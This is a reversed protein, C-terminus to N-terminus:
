RSRKDNLKREAIQKNSPNLNKTKPDYVFDFDDGAVKNFLVKINDDKTVFYNPVNEYQMLEPYKTKLFNEKAKDIKQSDSLENKEVVQDLWESMMYGKDNDDFSGTRAFEDISSLVADLREKSKENGIEHSATILRKLDGFAIKGDKGGKLVNVIVNGVEDNSDSTSIDKLANYLSGKSLVGRMAGYFGKKDKKERQFSKIDSMYTTYAQAFEPRVDGQASMTVVEDPTLPKKGGAMDTIVKMENKFINEKKEYETARNLERIDRILKDRSMSSGIEKKHEDYYSIALNSDISKMYNVADIHTKQEVADQEVKIKEPSWGFKDALQLVAARQLGISEYIRRPDLSNVATSRDTEIFSNSQDVFYKEKEEYQHKAIRNQLESKNNFMMMSVKTRQRDNKVLSGNVNNEFNKWDNEFEEHLSFSNEGRSNRIKDNWELEKQSAMTAARLQVVEDAEKQEKQIIDSITSTMGEIGSQMKQINRQGFDGADARFSVDPLMREQVRDDSMRPMKPM